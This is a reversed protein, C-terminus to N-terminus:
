LRFLRRVLLAFFVSSSLLGAYAEIVLTVKGANSADEIDGFGMPNLFNLLGLHIARGIALDRSTLVLVAVFLVLELAIWTLLLFPRYGYGCLADSALGPLRRWRPHKARTRARSLQLGCRDQGRANEDVSHLRYAQRYALAAHAPLQLARLQAGLDEYVAALLVSQTRSLSLPGRFEVEAAFLATLTRTRVLTRSLEQLEDPDAADYLRGFVLSDGARKTAPPVYEALFVEVRHNFEELQDAEDAPPDGLEKLYADSHRQILRTKSRVFDGPQHTSTPETM